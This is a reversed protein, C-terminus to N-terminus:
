LISRLIATVVGVLALGAMGYVLKEVIRFRESTVYKSELKLKISSIDERINTIQESIVALQIEMNETM